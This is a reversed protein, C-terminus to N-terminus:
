KSLRQPFFTAFPASIFAVIQAAIGASSKFAAKNPCARVPVTTRVTVSWLPAATGCVATLMRFIPVPSTDFVTVL